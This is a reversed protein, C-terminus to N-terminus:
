KLKWTWERGPQLALPHQSRGAKVARESAGFSEGREHDIPLEGRDKVNTGTFRWVEQASAPKVRRSSVGVRKVGGGVNM